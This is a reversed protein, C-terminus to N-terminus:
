DPRHAKPASPQWGRRRPVNPSWLSATLVYNAASGARKAFEELAFGGAGGCLLSPINLARIQQVLMVADELYAIMYIVDPPEATMHALLSRWYAPKATKRGCTIQTRIEIARDRCFEMM